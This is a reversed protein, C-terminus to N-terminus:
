TATALAIRTSLGRRVVPWVEGSYRVLIVHSHELIDEASSLSGRGRGKTSSLMGNNGFVEPHPLDETYNTKRHTSLLDTMKYPEAMRDM